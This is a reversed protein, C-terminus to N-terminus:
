KYIVPLIMKVKQSKGDQTGPIWKPMSKVVRLADEDQSKSLGRAIAVDTVNGNEDIVFSVLVRGKSGQPFKKSNKVFYDNVSDYGESSFVPMKEVVLFPENDTREKKEVQKEQSNDQHNDKLLYFGVVVGEDSLMDPVSLSYAATEDCEFVGGYYGNGSITNTIKVEAEGEDSRTLRMLRTPVSEGYSTVMLIMYSVGQKLIISFRTEAKSFLMDKLLPKDSPAVTAMRSKLTEYDVQENSGSFQIDALGTSSNASPLEIQVDPTNGLGQPLGVTAYIVEVKFSLLMFLAGVLLLFSSYRLLTYKKNKDNSIMAFRRKSLKASFSSSLVPMNAVVMCDILLRRYAISDGGQSIVVEDASFEHVELVLQKLLYAFPNFWQIALLVESLILDLSHWQSVHALEHKVLLACDPRQLDHKPMVICGLFSFTQRWKDSVYVKQGYLQVLQSGRKIKISLSLLLFVLRVLMAFVVICYISFITDSASIGNSDMVDAIWNITGDPVRPTAVAATREVEVVKYYVYTYSPLLLSLAIVFLLVLRNLLLLKINRLFFYYVLVLVSLILASKLLFLLGSHTIM